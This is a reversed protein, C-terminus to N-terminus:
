CLPLQWRPSPPAPPELTLQFAASGLWRLKPNDGLLVVGERVWQLAALGRRRMAQQGIFYWALVLVSLGIVLQSEIGGM